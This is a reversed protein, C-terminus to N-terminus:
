PVLVTKMVDGREAEGFAERWEALPRTKSLLPATPVAGSALLSLARDADAATYHFSGVVSVEEYHVRFADASLRSGAAMGAFLLLTGGPAVRSALSSAYAPDGTTDVVLDFPAEAEDVGAGLTAFLALRGRELGTVGIESGKGRLLLFFLLGIPGCGAILVRSGAKPAVRSLGHVVSALPDLLAAAEFSLGDPVRRVAGRVLRPSLLVFDAFAGWLPADFATECLNQRGDRCPRCVGCPATVASTVRDGPAFPAGAGASDVVGAMEHGLTVPFPVKPHGRRLLKLDTGCTLAAKVRVVVEGPGPVLDPREVLAARGAAECVLARM